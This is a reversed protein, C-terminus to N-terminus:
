REPDTRELDARDVLGLLRGDPDTVIAHHVNRVELRSRVEAAREHPRLNSPGPEMVSRGAGALATGRLRGLLM